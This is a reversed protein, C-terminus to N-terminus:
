IFRLKSNERLGAIFAPDAKGEPKRGVAALERLSCDAQPYAPSGALTFDIVSAINRVTVVIEKRGDDLKREERTVAAPDTTDVMFAFSCGSIDGRRVLEIAKDGDTTHPAEFGFHVGDGRIEYSLTGKGDRSRALLCKRDHFMTMKIDSRKLLDPTVAEPAIVERVVVTDDEYLVDSLENFVISRGVIGRSPTEGDGGERLKVGDFYRERKQIKEMM